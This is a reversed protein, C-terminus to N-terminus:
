CQKKNMNFLNCVVPQHTLKLHETLALSAEEKEQAHLYSMPMLRTM